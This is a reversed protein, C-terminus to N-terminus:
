CPSAVFWTPVETCIDCSVHFRKTTHHEDTPVPPSPSWQLCRLTTPVPYTQQHASPQCSRDNQARFPRLCRQSPIVPVDPLPDSHRVKVAQGREEAAATRNAQVSHYIGLDESFRLVRGTFRMLIIWIHPLFCFFVWM